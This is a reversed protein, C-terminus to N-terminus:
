RSAPRRPRGGADALHERRVLLRLLLLEADAGARLAAVLGAVELRHLADVVARDAVDDGAAAVPVLAAEPVFGRLGSHLSRSYWICLQYWKVQSQPSWMTSCCTWLMSTILQAVFAWGTLATPMPPRLRAGVGLEAVDEVVEGISKSYGLPTWTRLM